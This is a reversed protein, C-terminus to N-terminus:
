RQAKKKNELFELLDGKEYRICRETIRIVPLPGRPASLTWVTRQSCHLLKAAEAATLLVPDPTM